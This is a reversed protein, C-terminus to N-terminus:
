SGSYEGAVPLGAGYRREFAAKNRVVLLYQSPALRTLASNTFTFEIGDIFHVGNLNFTGTGPNNLEVFEFDFANTFGAAVEAANPASPNYNLETVVL